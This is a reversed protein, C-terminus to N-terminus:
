IVPSRMAFTISGGITAISYARGGLQQGDFDVQRLAPDPRDDGAHVSLPQGLLPRVAERFSSIVPHLV